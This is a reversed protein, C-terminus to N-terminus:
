NGKGSFVVKDITGSGSTRTYVFRVHTYQVNSVSYLTIGAGSVADVSDDLDGFDASVPTNESTAIQLKFQGVPSGSYKIFLSFGVHDLVRIPNSTISAGLNKSNQETLDGVVRQM